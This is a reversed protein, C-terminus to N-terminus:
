RIARGASPVPGGVFPIVHRKLNPSAEKAGRQDGTGAGGHRRLGRSRRGCPFAPQLLLVPRRNAAEENGGRLRCGLAAIGVPQPLQGLTEIGLATEHRCPELSGRGALLRQLHERQQLPGRAVAEIRRVVIGGAKGFAQAAGAARAPCRRGFRRADVHREREREEAPEGVQMEAAGARARQADEDIERLFPEVEDLGHALGDGGIAQRFQGGHRRRAKPGVVAQALGQRAIALQSRLKRRFGRGATRLSSGPM